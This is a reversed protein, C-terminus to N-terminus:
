PVVVGEDTVTLTASYKRAKCRSSGTTTLGADSCAPAGNEPTIEYGFQAFSTGYAMGLETWSNCTVGIRPINTDTLIWAVSNAAAAVSGCTFDFRYTHGPDLPARRPAAAALEPVDPATLPSSHDNCALLLLPISLGALLTTPRM